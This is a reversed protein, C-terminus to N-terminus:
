WRWQSARPSRSSPEPGCTAQGRAARHQPDARSARRVPEVGREALTSRMRRRGLIGRRRRLAVRALLRAVRAARWPEAGALERGARALLTAAPAGLAAALRRRRTSARIVLATALALAAGHVPADRRMAAQWAAATATAAFLLAVFGSAASVIVHRLWAPPDLLRYRVVAWGLALPLALGGLALLASAPPPPQVGIVFV